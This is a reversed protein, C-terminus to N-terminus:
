QLLSEQSPTTVVETILAEPSAKAELLYKLPLPQHVADASNAFSWPNIIPTPSLYKLPSWCTVLPCSACTRLFRASEPAIM